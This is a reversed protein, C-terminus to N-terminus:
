GFDEVGADPNDRLFFTWDEGCLIWHRYALSYRALAPSIGRGSLTYGYTPSKPERDTLSAIYTHNRYDYSQSYKYSTELLGDWRSPPFELSLDATQLWEKDKTTLTYDLFKGYPSSTGAGSSKDAAKDVRKGAM